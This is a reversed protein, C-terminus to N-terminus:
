SQQRVKVMELVPQVLAAAVVANGAATLHMRDYSMHADGLDLVPGLNVYKVRADRGFRQGVMTSVDRQQARHRGGMYPGLEYPQTIVMVQAGQALAYDVAVAISHCYGQWDEACGTETLRRGGRTDVTPAVVSLQRELSEEAVAAARLAEATTRAALTPHFVTKGKFAYMANINGAALLAAKEKFIIPYIPLYGTLRFIPSDRRFVSTNEGLVDNYGEYLCVLDYRLYRYDELTFRFSYAGENNYGLNVVRFATVGGGAQSALDRELTAPIADSWDVGYGFATSGGLLAIRYEGARKSGVTPGRYGWVNFGATQQYKRHLYVDVGLLAATTVVTAGLITAVVMILRRRGRRETCATM